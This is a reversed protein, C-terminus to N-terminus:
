LVIQGDVLLSNKLTQFIHKKYLFQHSMESYICNHMIQKPELQLYIKQLFVAKCDAVTFISQPHYKLVQRKVLAQDPKHDELIMVKLATEM